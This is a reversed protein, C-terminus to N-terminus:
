PTGGEPRVSGPPHRYNKGYEEGTERNEILIVFDSRNRAFIRVTYACIVLAGLCWSFRLFFIFVKTDKTSLTMTNFINMM